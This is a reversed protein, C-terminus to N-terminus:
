SVYHTILFKLSCGDMGAKILDIQTVHIEIATEKQEYAATLSGERILSLIISCCFDFAANHPQASAPSFTDTIVLQFLLVIFLVMLQLFLKM